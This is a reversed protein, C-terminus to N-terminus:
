GFSQRTTRGAGGKTHHSAARGAIQRQQLRELRKGDAHLTLSAQPSRRLRDDRQVWRAMPAKDFQFGIGDTSHSVMSCCRRESTGFVNPTQRTAEASHRPM